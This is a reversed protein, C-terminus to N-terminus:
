PNEKLHYDTVCEGSVPNYEQSYKIFPKRDSDFEYKVLHLRSFPLIANEQDASNEYVSYLENLRAFKKSNRPEFYYKNSNITSMAAKYHEYNIDDYLSKLVNDSMLRNGSKDEVAVNYFWTMLNYMDVEANEKPSVGSFGNYAVVFDDQRFFFFKYNNKENLVEMTAPIARGCSISRGAHTEFSFSNYVRFEGRYAVSDIYITTEPEETHDDGYIVTWEVYRSRTPNIVQYREPSVFSTDFILKRNADLVRYRHKAPAQGLAGQVQQEGCAATYDDIFTFAPLGLTDEDIVIFYDTATPNDIMMRDCRNNDGQESPTCGSIVIISTFLVLFINKM